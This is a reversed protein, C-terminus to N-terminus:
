GPRPPAGSRGGDPRRGEAPWWGAPRFWRAEALRPDPPALSFRTDAPETGSVSSAWAVGPQSRSWRASSTTSTTARTARSRYQAQDGRVVHRGAVCRLVLLDGVAQGGAAAEVHGVRLQRQMRGGEPRRHVRHQQRHHEPQRARSQPGTAHEVQDDPQAHHREAQLGTTPHGGPSGTQHRPQGDGEVRGQDGVVHHQQGLGDRQQQDQAQDQGQTPPPHDQGPHQATQEDQGSGRGLADGQHDTEPEQPLEAPLAAGLEQHHGSEDDRRPHHAVPDLQARGNQDGGVAEVLRGDVGGGGALVTGEDVRHEVGGEGAVAQGLEVLDPPLAVQLVQGQLREALVGALDWAHHRAVRGVDELQLRGVVAQGLDPVPAVEGEHVRRHRREVQDGEDAHDPHAQAPLVRDHLQQREDGAVEQDVLRSSTAGGRSRAGNSRTQQMPTPTATSAARRRRAM